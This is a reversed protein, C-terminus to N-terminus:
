VAFFEKAACGYIAAATAFAQMNSAPDAAHQQCYAALSYALVGSSYTVGNSEYTAAVYITKDLEKAALEPSVATYAGDVLTMATVGDANEATLETATNYTDETWYYFTM